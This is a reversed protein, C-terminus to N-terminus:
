ADGMPTGAHCRDTMLGIESFGRSDCLYVTSNLIIIDNVQMSRMEKEDMEAAYGTPSREYADWLQSLAEEESEAEIEGEAMKEWLSDIEDGTPEYDDLAMKNDMERYGDNDRSLHRIEYNMEEM